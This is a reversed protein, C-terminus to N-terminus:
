MRLKTSHASTGPIDWWVLWSRMYKAVAGFTGLHVQALTCAVVLVMLAALCVITLKLSSVVDLLMDLLPKVSAPTKM